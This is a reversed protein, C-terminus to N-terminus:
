PLVDAHPSKLSKRKALLQADRDLSLKLRAERLSPHAAWITFLAVAGITFGCRAHGLMDLFRHFLVYRRYGPGVYLIIFVVAIERELYSQRGLGTM